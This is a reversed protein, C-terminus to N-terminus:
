GIALSYGLRVGISDIIGGAALLGLAYASQFAMVIHSYQIENWGIKVQLLPKLVGLVQRDMYNITNAFFLLACIRWRISGIKLPHPAHVEAEGAPLGISAEPLPTVGDTM